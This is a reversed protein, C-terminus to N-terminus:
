PQQLLLLRHSVYRAFAEGTRDYSHRLVPEGGPSSDGSGATPAQQQQFGSALLLELGGPVSLVKSAVTPNGMRISRFKEDGGSTILNGLLKCVTAVCVTIADSSKGSADGGELSLLMSLALDLQEAAPELLVEDVDTPRTSDAAGSFVTRVGISTGVVDPAQLMLSPSTVDATASAGSFSMMPKFASFGGNLRALREEEQRALAAAQQTEPVVNGRSAAEPHAFIGGKGQGQEKEKRIASASQVKKDWANERLEAARQSALRRATRQAESLSSSSTKQNGHVSKVSNHSSNNYAYACKLRVSMPRSNTKVLELFMDYTNIAVGNVSLVVDGAEVGLAQAESGIVVSHVDLLRHASTNPNGDADQPHVFTLGLTPGTFSVEYEAESEVNQLPTPSCSATSIRPSDSSKQVGMQKGDITAGLKHGKGGSFAKPQLGLTSRIKDFM